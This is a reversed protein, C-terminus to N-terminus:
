LPKGKKNAFDIFDQYSNLGKEKRFAAMCIRQAVWDYIRDGSAMWPKIAVQPTGNIDVEAFEGNGEACGTVGQRQRTHTGNTNIFSVLMDAQMVGNVNRYVRVTEPHLTFTSGNPSQTTWSSDAAQALPAAAILLTAIVHKM